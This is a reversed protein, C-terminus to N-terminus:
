RPKSMGRMRTPDIGKPVPVNMRMTSLRRNIEGLESTRVVRKLKFVTRSIDALGVSHEDNCVWIVSVPVGNAVMALRRKEDEILRSVSSRHGEAILVIGGRGSMRYVLDQSKANIAVPEESGSWGRKLMTGMIAGVAGPQGEIRAFAVKEARRSLVASFTVAGGVLALVSYIITGFVNGSIVALVVGVILVAVGAAAALPVAKKDTSATLKWIQWIQSFRGPAKTNNDKAM